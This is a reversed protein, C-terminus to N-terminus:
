QGKNIIKRMDGIMYLSGSIVLIDNSNINKYAYEYAEKYDDIAIAEIGYSDIKNKLDAALEARDSHPTVAIVEEADFCIEKIMDDVQKDALVGFILIMKNYDFYKKINKKLARIGDINHAGDIVIFPNRKLIEMRGIWKVTKIGKFINEDGIEVNLERRLIDIVRIATNANYIQHEGLLPLEYLHEEGNKLRRFVQYSEKEEHVMNIFEVDAKDTYYIKAYNEKSIENIVDLVVPEQPYLVLPVNRKIIGAKERAIDQISDGLINLHDYGISTIVSVLPTIVNTSDLRGGLGVEIVGFDIKMNSFYKFMVCTIFEFETPSDYGEEIVKPVLKKVEEVTEILDEKSINVGNIQMREEFEELYPSTYMGVKYGAVKLINSIMATTSGKGNTGAIHILKLDKNPNGLLELIRETRSLGFNMGFKSLGHIYEMCEKYDM